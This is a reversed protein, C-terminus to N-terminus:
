QIIHISALPLIFVTVSFSKRGFSLMSQNGLYKSLVLFRISISVTARRMQGLMALFFDYSIYGDKIQGIIAAETKPATSSVVSSAGLAMEVWDLLHQLSGRQAALGLVLQCALQKGINDAGSGPMTSSKLFRTVSLLCEAGLVPIKTENALSLPPLSSLVDLATQLVDNCLNTGQDQNSQWNQRLLAFLLSLGTRVGMEVLADSAYHSKQMSVKEEMNCSQAEQLRQQQKVKEKDHYKNSIAHFIRRLVILRKQLASAFPSESCVARALSLQNALLAELFHEQEDPSPIEREFDPLQPGQLHLTQRPTSIVEKNLVMRNYLELLGDRSSIKGWDEGVWSANLHEMWKLKM